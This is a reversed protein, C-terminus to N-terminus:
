AVRCLGRPNHKMRVALNIKIHASLGSPLTMFRDIRLIQGILDAQWCLLNVHDLAVTIENGGSASGTPRAGGCHLIGRSQSQHCYHRLGIFAKQGLIM